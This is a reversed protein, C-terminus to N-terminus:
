QDIVCIVLHIRDEWGGNYVFHGLRTDVKYFTGDAPIHYVKGLEDDGEYVHGFMAFRNTHLVLHYRYEYDVHVSLGSKSPLKMYRIRGFKVGQQKALNELVTRTYEPVGDNFIDFDSELLGSDTLSGAGELWPNDSGERHNLCVQNHPLKSLPPPSPWTQLTLVHELDKRMQELNITVDTKTILM